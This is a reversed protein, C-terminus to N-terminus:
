KQITDNTFKHLANQTNMYHLNGLELCCKNSSCSRGSHFWELHDDKVQFAKHFICTCDNYEMIALCASVIEMRTEKLHEAVAEFAAANEISHRIISVVANFNREVYPHKSRLLRRLKSATIPM